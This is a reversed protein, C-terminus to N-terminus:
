VTYQGQFVFQSYNTNKDMDAYTSASSGTATRYSISNTTTSGPIVQAFQPPNSIWLGCSLVTIGGAFTQSQGFGTGPTFPLGSIALAGSPSGTSSGYSIYGRIYVTNGIKTYTGAPTYTSTTLASITGGGVSWSPTWTGEEYDDLTKANSSASQSAPFTIGTGTQPSAGQLALTRGLEGSLYGTLTLSVGIATTSSSAGYFTFAGSSNGTDIMLASRAYPYSVSSAFGGTGYAPQVAYGIATKGGYLTGFTSLGGFAYTTAIATVGNTADTGFGACITGNIQMKPDYTTNTATNTGIYVNGSANITFRNTAATSDYINFDGVNIGGSYLNYRRGNTTASHDLAIYPSAGDTGKVLVTGRVSGGVTLLNTVSTAGIGLNGSSDIIAAQTPSAGKTATVDFALSSGATTNISDDNIVMRVRPGNYVTGNYSQSRFVLAPGFGTYPQGATSASTATIAVVNVPNQRNVSTDYYSAELKQTPSSTGIGLGTSTLRMQESGSTQYIFSNANEIANVYASTSRNYYVSTVAGSTDGNISGPGIELGEAGSNSVSLKRIPSSTGIGLNAGDFTLASGTTLVKSGNLYAVGNATGASYTGGLEFKDTNLNIFNTDLEANTLPAGKVTAGTGSTVRTTISSM